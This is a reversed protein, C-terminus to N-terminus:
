TAEKTSAPPAISKFRECNLCCDGPILTKWGCTICLELATQDYAPQGLYLPRLEYLDPRRAVRQQWAPLDILQTARWNSFEGDEGSWERSQWAVPEAPQVPQVSAKGAAFARYALTYKDPEDDGLQLALWHFYDEAPEVPQALDARVYRVDSNNISHWCWTVEGSTYDVPELLEDASCDGHLQLWIEKPGAASAIPTTM